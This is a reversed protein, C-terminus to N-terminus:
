TDLEAATSVVDGTKEEITKGADDSLKIKEFTADYWKRFNEDDGAGELWAKLALFALGGYSLQEGNTLASQNNRSIPQGSDRSTGLTSAYIVDKNKMLYSLSYPTRIDLYDVDKINQGTQLKVNLEPKKDPISSIKPWVSILLSEKPYKKFTINFNVLTDVSRPPIYINNRDKYDFDLGKINNAKIDKGRTTQSLANGAFENKVVADILPSLESYPYVGTLKKKFQVIPYALEEIRENSDQVYSELDLKTILTAADRANADQVFELIGDIDEQFKKIKEKTTLPKSEDGTKESLNGQTSISERILRRLM